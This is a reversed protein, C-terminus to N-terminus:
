RPTKTKGKTTINTTNLVPFLRDVVLLESAGKQQPPTGIKVNNFHKVIISELAAMNPQIVQQNVKNIDVSQIETKPKVTRNNRKNQAYLSCTFFLLFAIFFISIAQKM